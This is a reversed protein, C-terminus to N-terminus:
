NFSKLYYTIGIAFSYLNGKLERKSTNSHDLEKYIDLNSLSNTLSKNYRFSVRFQETGMGIGLMYYPEFVEEKESLFYLESDAKWKGYFTLGLGIQGSIHFFNDDPTLLYQNYLANIDLGKSKVKGEGLVDVQMNNYDKFSIVSFSEQKYLLELLLDASKHLYSVSSLGIYYNNGSSTEFLDNSSINTFGVGLVYGVQGQSFSTIPVILFIFQIIVKKM